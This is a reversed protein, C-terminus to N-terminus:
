RRAPLFIGPDVYHVALAVLQGVQRNKGALIFLGGPLRHRKWHWLFVGPKGPTIM